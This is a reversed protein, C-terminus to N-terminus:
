TQCVDLAKYPHDVWVVVRNDGIDAGEGVELDEEITPGARKGLMLSSAANLDQPHTFKM